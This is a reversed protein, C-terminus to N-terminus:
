AHRASGIGPFPTDALGQAGVDLAIVAGGLPDSEADESQPKASTVFLTKMDAGGFACMTPERMPLAITRDLVGEPTFRLLAGEGNACTWYAGDCDVAAGDPRGSRPHLDAFVRRHSPVGDDIDYDFAWVTGCDLHSDSLYMTHGNPSFAIGNPILLGEVIPSSLGDLDYRYLKGADSKADADMVMTSCWFRGQRDPRGDNSRMGPAAHLLDAVRVWDAQDGDPPLHRAAFLGSEGGILWADDATMAICGAMEPLSWHHTRGSEVDWRWLCRAPIDTWYLAQEGPHWVPSEGTACRMNGLREFQM